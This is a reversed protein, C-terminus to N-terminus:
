SVLLSILLNIKWVLSIYLFFGFTQRPHFNKRTILKQTLDNLFIPWTGNHYIGKIQMLKIKWPILSMSWGHSSEDIEWQNTVSIETVKLNRNVVAKQPYLQGRSHATIGLAPFLRKIFNITCVHVYM